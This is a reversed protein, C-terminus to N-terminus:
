LCLAGPQQFRDGGRLLRQLAYFSVAGVLGILAILATIDPLAIAEAVGNGIPALSSWWDVGTAVSVILWVLSRSTLDVGARVVWAGGSGVVASALLAGAAAFLVVAAARSLVVIRRRRIRASWAVQVTRELFESRGEVAPLTTMLRAFAAEAAAEEAQEGEQRLWREVDHRDIRM